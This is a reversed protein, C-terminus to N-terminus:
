KAIRYVCYPDNCARCATEEVMRRHGVLVQLLRPYIIVLNDCIPAHAGQIEACVPCEVLTICWADDEERLHAPSWFATTIEQTRAIARPLQDDPPLAAIEAAVQQIMPIQTIMPALTTGWNRMMLRTGSEGLMLYVTAFLHSLEAETAVPDMTPSPLAEAWRELGARTLLTRYQTGTIAQAAALVVHMTLGPIMRTLPTHPSTHPMPSPNTM